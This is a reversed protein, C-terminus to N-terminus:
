KIITDVQAGPPQSRGANGTDFPRTSRFLVQGKPSVLTVDLTLAPPPVDNDHVKDLNWTAYHRNAM